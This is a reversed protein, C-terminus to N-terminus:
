GLSAVTRLQVTDLIEEKLLVNSIVVLQDGAEVAQRSLLLSFAEEIVRESDHNLSM